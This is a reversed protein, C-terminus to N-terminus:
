KVARWHKEDLNEMFQIVVGIAHSINPRTSVMAYMLNGVVNEYPVRSMYWKEEHTRPSLVSSLNFHSALPVNVPKLNKMGFKELVREM